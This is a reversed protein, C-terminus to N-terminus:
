GTLDPLMEFNVLVVPSGDIKMVKPKDAVGVGKM